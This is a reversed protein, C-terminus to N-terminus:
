CCGITDGTTFATRYTKGNNKFYLKRDEGHYDWSSDEWGPM